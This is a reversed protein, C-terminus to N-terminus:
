LIWLSWYLLYNVWSVMSINRFFIELLFIWFRRFRINLLL